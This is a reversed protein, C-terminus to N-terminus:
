GEAQVGGRFEEPPSIVGQTQDESKSSAESSKYGIGKLKRRSEEKL